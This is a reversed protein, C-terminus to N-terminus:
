LFTMKSNDDNSALKFNCKSTLFNKVPLHVRGSSEPSLRNELNLWIEEDKVRQFNWKYGNNNVIFTVAITKPTESGYQKIIAQLCLRLDIELIDSLTM